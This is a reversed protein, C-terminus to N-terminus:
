GELDVEHNEPLRWPHTVHSQPQAVDGGGDVREYVGDEIGLEPWVEKLTIEDCSSIKVFFIKLRDNARNTEHRPALRLVM